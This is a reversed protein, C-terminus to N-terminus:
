NLTHCAEILQIWKDVRSDITLTEKRKACRHKYENRKGEDSLLMLIAKALYKESPELPINLDEYKKGSCVPVLVGYGMEVVEKVPKNSEGKEALIERAGSFFDTAICPLELCVAEALANPFGEFLSPLVFVEAQNMYQYPNDVFGTFYVSNEIGCKKTLGKLYEELEGSGIIVLFADPIRKVVETFARILHWQGKPDALRGTTAVIRKGTIVKYAKQPLERLGMQQISLTDYGNEIARVKEPKLKFDDVLEKKVGKSVAVIKDARNYLIKVLPNVVFKYQPKKASQRLSSRVSLIVNCGKRGSLINAVNASDLFSICAQYGGNRKLHRLRRIRKILVKLQFWVSGTKPKETIGLTLINGRFPYDIVKDDNVLIDIDWERPFHTTINSLAREAGGKDLYSIVFLVRKM